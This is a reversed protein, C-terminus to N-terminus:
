SVPRSWFALVTTIFTNWCNNVRSPLSRFLWYWMIFCANVIRRSLFSLVVKVFSGLLFFAKARSLQARTFGLSCMLWVQWVHSLRCRVSPGATIKKWFEVVHCFPCVLLALTLTKAIRVHGFHWSLRSLLMEVVTSAHRFRGVFYDNCSLARATWCRSLLSM